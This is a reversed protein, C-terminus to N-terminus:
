LESKTRTDKVTSILREISLNQELIQIGTSRRQMVGDFIVPPTVDQSYLDQTNVYQNLDWTFNRSVDRITNLSTTIRPDPNVL